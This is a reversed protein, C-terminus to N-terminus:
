GGVDSTLRRSPQTHGAVAVVVVVQVVTVPGLELVM